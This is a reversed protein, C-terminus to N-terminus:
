SDKACLYIKDIDSQNNILDLIANAKGSGSGIIIIRYPHDPTHPWKSNQETKM